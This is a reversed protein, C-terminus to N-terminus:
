PHGPPSRDDPPPGRPPLRPGHPPNLWGARFCDQFRAARVGCRQRVDVGAARAPRGCGSTGRIARAAPAPITCPHLAHRHLLLRRGPGQAGPPQAPDGVAVRPGELLRQGGRARVRVRSSSWSRSRSCSATRVRPRFALSACTTASGSSSAARPISTTRTSRPPSTVYWPGPWSTAYGITASAAGPAPAPSSAGAMGRGRRPARGPRGATRRPGRPRSPRCRRRRRRAAPGRARGGPSSPRRRCRGERALDPGEPDADGAADAEVADGEVDGRVEGVEVQDVRAPHGAQAGRRERALASAGQRRGAGATGQGAHGGVGVGQGARRADGQGCGVEGAGEGRAQADLQGAVQRRGGVGDALAPRQLIEDVADTLGSAGAPARQHGGPEELQAAVGDGAPPHRREDVALELALAEHRVGLGDVVVPVAEVAPDRRAVADPGPDQLVEGEAVTPVSASARSCSRLTM